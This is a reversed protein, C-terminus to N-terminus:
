LGDFSNFLGKRALCFDSENLGVLLRLEKLEKWMLKAVEFNALCPEQALIENKNEYNILTASCRRCVGEENDGLVRHSSHFKM